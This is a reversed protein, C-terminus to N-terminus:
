AGMALMSTIEQSNIPRSTVIKGVKISSKLDKKVNSIHSAISKSVSGAEYSIRKPASLGPSTSPYRDTDKLQFMSSFKKEGMIQETAALKTISNVKSPIARNAGRRNYLGSSTRGIRAKRPIEAAKEVQNPEDSSMGPLWSFKSKVWNWAKQLKTFANIIKEVWGIIFQGWSSEMFALKIADWNQIIKKIINILWGFPTFLMFVKVGLRVFSVGTDFLWKGLSIFGSCIKEVFDMITQLWGIDKFKARLSDWKSSISMVAGILLTIGFVVALVPNSRMAANLLLFGMRITRLVGNLFGLTCGLAKTAISQLFTAATALKSEKSFLRTVFGGIEVISNYGEMVTESMEVASNYAGFADEAFGVVSNFGNMAKQAVEVASNYGKMALDATEGIVPFMVIAENVVPLLAQGFCDKVAGVGQEWKEFNDILSNTIGEVREFGKVEGISGIESSLNAVKGKLTEMYSGSKNENVKVGPLTLQKGPLHNNAKDPLKIKSNSNLKKQSKDISNNFVKFRKLAKEGPIHKELEDLKPIQQSAQGAVAETEVAIGSFTKSIESRVSKYIGVANGAQTSVESVWELGKIKGTQEGLKTLFTEMGGSVAEQGAGMLSSFESFESAHDVLEKGKLSDLSSQFSLCSDAFCKTLASYEISFSKSKNSFSSLATQAFDLSGIEGTATNFKHTENIFSELFSGSDKLDLCGQTIKYFSQRFAEGLSDLPAQIKKASETVKELFEITDIINQLQTAM